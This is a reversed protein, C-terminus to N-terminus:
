FSDDLLTDAEDFVLHHLRSMDYVRNTLLKSLVGPTAILIDNLHADMSKVLKKTGRGGCVSIPAFDTYQSLEMSVAHIQDTLERSPTVIVSFPKNPEAHSGTTQKYRHIKEIIPLLFALTKGSGTEAACLVNKHELMHPITLVQVNTPTKIGMEKLGNLLEKHLGFDAFQLVGSGGDGDEQLAPNGQIANITFFDGKSRQDKWGGSALHEPSFNSYTQGKHHNFQQRKCSIVAPGKYRRAEQHRKAFAKRRVRELKDVMKQPVTIRSRSQEAVSAAYRRLFIQQIGCHCCLNRGFMKLIQIGTVWQIRM